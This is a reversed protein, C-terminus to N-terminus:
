SNFNSIIITDGEVGCFKGKVLREEGGLFAPPRGGGAAGSEEPCGDEPTCRDTRETTASDCDVSEPGSQDRRKEFKRSQFRDLMQRGKIGPWLTQWAQKGGNAWGGGTNRVQIRSVVLPDGGKNQRRKGGPLDNAEAAGPGRRAERLPQLPAHTHARKWGTPNGIRKWM